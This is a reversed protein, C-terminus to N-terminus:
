KEQEWQIRPADGWLNELDYYVRAEPSFLHVVVDIFDVVMWSQGELGSRSFAKAGAKQALEEIEQCVTRMQRASSGTAIVFYDAVPWLGVFDLVMVDRCRTGEALRAAEV